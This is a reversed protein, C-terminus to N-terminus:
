QSHRSGASSSIVGEGALTKQLFIGIFQPGRDTVIQKTTTRFKTQFWKKSIKWIKIALAEKELYVFKSLKTFKDSIVLVLDSDFPKPFGSVLDIILIEGPKEAV